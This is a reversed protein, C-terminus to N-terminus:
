SFLDSINTTINLKLFYEFFLFMIYLALIVIMINSIIGGGGLYIILILIICIIEIIIPRSLLETAGKVMNETNNESM